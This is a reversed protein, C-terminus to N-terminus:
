LAELFRDVADRVGIIESESMLMVLHCAFSRKELKFNVEIFLATPTSLQAANILSAVEVHQALMSPASFRLELNIQQTLGGLCAGVLVNTLDLLLEQQVTEDQLNSYGMLAELETWDTDPFILVAEGRFGGFFGQRVASVLKGGVIRAMAAPILEPRIILIRPVSLHVFEGLIEAVSAGAQGMGINTIEQLADRQDESLMGVTV